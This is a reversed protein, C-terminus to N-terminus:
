FKWKQLVWVVRKSNHIFTNTLSHVVNSELQDLFSSIVSMQFKRNIFIRESNIRIKQNECLLERTLFSKPHKLRSITPFFVRSGNLFGDPLNRLVCVPEQHRLSGFWSILAWSNIFSISVCSNQFESFKGSILGLVGQRIKLHNKHVLLPGRVEFWYFLRLLRSAATHFRHHFFKTSSIWFWEEWGILVLFQDSGLLNIDIWFEFAYGYNFSM